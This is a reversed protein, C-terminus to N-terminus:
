IKLVRFGGRIELESEDDSKEVGGGGGRVRQLHTQHKRKAMCCKKFPQGSGCPCPGKRTVRVPKEAQEVAKTDAPDQSTAKSDTPAPLADAKSMEFQDSGDDLFTTSNDVVKKM